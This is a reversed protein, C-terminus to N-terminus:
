QSIARGPDVVQTGWLWEGYCAAVGVFAEEMYVGLNERGLILRGNHKLELRGHGWKALILMLAYTELFTEYCTKLGFASYIPGNSDWISTDTTDGRAHSYRCLRGYVSRAWGGRFNQTSGRFIGIGEQAVVEEERAKVGPLLLVEDCANGFKFESGGSWREWRRQDNALACRAAVVSTELAVRLIALATKYHGHVTNFISAELNDSIAMMANGVIGGHPMAFIWESSLDNLLAIRSGQHGTTMIAVHGPLDMIHEWAKQDILDTPAPDPKGDSIAFDDPELVRRIARFDSLDMDKVM